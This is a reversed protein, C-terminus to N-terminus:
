ESLRAATSESAQPLASGSADCVRLQFSYSQAWDDTQENQCIKLLIVNPGPKLTADIQYQDIESGRHYEERGFLYQGNVWVKWANPTGLRLQVAQERPSEYETALYMVAGKHPAVQKAIDIVGYPDETAVDQWRVAGEKGQLEAEFNIEKEPPYEAAFGKGGTSDFPGVIRWKTLFGFHKQLDVEQGLEKLAAAITKVQDDDYAGSLARGYTEKAGDTEGAEKQRAAEAIWYEVADRRFAAAPDDLMQPIISQIGPNVKFLCEYALRRARADNSRDDILVRLEAEPLPQGADIARDVVTEVVGRLWNGALPNAGNFARLVQPIAPADLQQLERVAAVAEAHGNGERDVNKIAAILEGTHGEDAAAYAMSAAAAVLLAAAFIDRM